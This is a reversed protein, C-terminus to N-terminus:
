LVLVVHRLHRLDGGVRMRDANPQRVQERLRAHLRGVQLTPQRAERTVLLLVGVGGPGDVRRAAQTVLMRPHDVRQLVPVAANDAEGLRQPLHELRLAEGRGLPVSRDVEVRCVTTSLVFRAKWTVTSSEPSEASTWIGTVSVIVPPVPVVGMTLRWVIRKM